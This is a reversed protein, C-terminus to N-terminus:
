PHEPARASAARRVHALPAADDLRLEGARLEVGLARWLAELDVPAPASAHEAYARSLWPEPLAADAVELLEAVSWRVSTDGGRALVARMATDLSAANNTASRIKVDTLLCFLAGGWYTRGWTSAGDLGGDGARPLGKPMNRVFARWLEAEDIWGARARALAEQYTALGEALWLHRRELTPLGLHFLEHLLVWGADLEREELARGVFLAVSAGGNGLQMGFLGAGGTPLAIVTVDAVPFRGYYRAVLDGAAGLAAALADATVALREGSELALRIVGGHLPVTRQEFRGFASYPAEFLLAAPAEFVFTREAGERPARWLGTVFSDGPATSVQLRYRDPGAYARPHLLWTSPPALLATGRRAAFGVRDIDDAAAALDYRYRLVCGRARCEPVHFERGTGVVPRWGDRTALELDSLFPDAYRDVGLREPVGQPLEARVFLERATPAATVTYQWTDARGDFAHAAGLPSSPEARPGGPAGPSAPAAPSGCALAAGALAVRLARVSSPRAIASM